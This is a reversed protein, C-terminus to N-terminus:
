QSKEVRDTVLRYQEELEQYEKELYAHREELPWSITTASMENPQLVKELKKNDRGNKQFPANLRKKIDLRYNRYQEKDNVNTAKLRLIEYIRRTQMKSLKLKERTEQVMDDCFGQHLRESQFSPLNLCNKADVFDRVRQFSESPDEVTIDKVESRSYCTNYFTQLLQAGHGQKQFPPLIMVQSIRPRIREPYAYYNYVTMYGAIAYMNNGNEKYKEFILYFKWRHDDVDIYSAGDIFFMIFTQLREHYERFGPTEIDTQYIEFKRVDNDKSVKYSHLMEGYPKFTADKQSLKIFEDKSTCYGPPLVKALTELVNDPEIGDFKHPSIRDFYQMNFYTCLRAASYFIEIVLEKYGFISEQEGFLQHTMDPHFTTSEDKLDSKQRVLKFHIVENACCRFSELRNKLISNVMM